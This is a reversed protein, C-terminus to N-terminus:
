NANLVEHEVFQKARRETWAEYLKGEWIDAVRYGESHLRAYQMADLKIRDPMGHWYDGQVRVIIVVSGLFVKFDVVGGGLRMRGGLEANQAQFWWGLQVLCIATIIEPLTGGAPIRARDAAPMTALKEAVEQQIKVFNVSLQRGFKVARTRSSLPKGVKRPKKGLEGFPKGLM